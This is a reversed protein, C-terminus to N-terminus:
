ACPPMAQTVDSSSVKSRCTRSVSSAPAPRQRSSTTRPITSSPGARILSSMSRPCSVEGLALVAVAVLEVEALLAAVGLAADQVRLVDGAALDLRRQMVASASCGLTSINSFGRGRDVQDRPALEAEGGVVAADADVHEVVLGALDLGDGGAVDQEGGAAAALHIEVRGFGSM